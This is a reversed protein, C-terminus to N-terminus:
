RQKSSFIRYEKRTLTRLKEKGEESKNIYIKAAGEFLAWMFMPPKDLFSLKVFAAYIDDILDAFLEPENKMVTDFYRKRAIAQGADYDKRPSYFEGWGLRM